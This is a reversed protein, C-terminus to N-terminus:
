PNINTNNTAQNTVLEFSHNYEKAIERVKPINSAPDTTNVAKQLIENVIHTMPKGKSKSIRYIVPILEESIKPSYM